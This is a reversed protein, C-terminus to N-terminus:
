RHAERLQQVAVKIKAKAEKGNSDTGDDRNRNFIGRLLGGALAAQGLSNRPISDFRQPTL